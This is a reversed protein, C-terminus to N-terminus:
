LSRIKQILEDLQIPSHSWPKKELFYQAYEEDSTYMKGEVLGKFICHTYAISPSNFFIDEESLVSNMEHNTFSFIPYGDKRGLYILLDYWLKGETNEHELFSLPEYEQDQLHSIKPLVEKMFQKELQEIKTVDHIGNEQAVVDIFQQATILYLRVITESTSVHEQKRRIFGVGGGGWNISKKAFFMEIHPLKVFISDIPESKDRCGIHKLTCNRALGGNIYTMFRDRNLNSGYSCYWVYKKENNNEVTMTIIIKNESLINQM